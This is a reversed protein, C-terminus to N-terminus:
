QLIAKHVNQQQMSIANHVKLGGGGGEERWKCNDKTSLVVLSRLHCRLGFRRRDGLFLFFFTRETLCRLGHHAPVGLDGLKRGYLGSRVREQGLVHPRHGVGNPRLIWGYLRKKVRAPPWEVSAACQMGHVFAACQDQM